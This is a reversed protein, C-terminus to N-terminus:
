EDVDLLKKRKTPWNKTNLYDAPPPSQHWGTGKFHVGPSSIFRKLKKKGCKPCKVVNKELDALTVFDEFIEGCGFCGFDYTPM